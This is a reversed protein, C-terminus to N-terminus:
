TIIQWICVQQSNFHIIYQESGIRSIAFFLVIWFLRQGEGAVQTLETRAVINLIYNSSSINLM